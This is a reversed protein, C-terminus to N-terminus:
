TTHLNTYYMYMYWYDIISTQDLNEKYFALGNKAIQEAKKDNKKLWILTEYLNDYNNDIEIFNKKNELLPEFWMKYESKVNLIVSQKKFESPYRYAQANGQINFIYKYKKQEEENMFSGKLYELERSRDVGIIKNYAKIRIVLKSLAVDILNKKNSDKSWRYSIDALKIRPNDLTNSCGTSSGRFLAISKKDKWKIIELEKSKWEDASPIPIDLNIDKNSQSGIMWYKKIDTIIDTNLHEYAYKNDKRLYPFDKRNILLDCDAVTYKNITALIMDQFEKVYTIPNGEFYTYAEFNLLCNNAHLFHPKMLTHYKIGRQEMLELLSNDLNNNKYKLYKYWDIEVEPNYIHYACELKNNRIRFYLLEAYNNFIFKLTDELNKKVLGKKYFSFNNKVLEEIKENKILKKYKKPKTFTDLIHEKIEKWKILPEIFSIFIPNTEHQFYKYKNDTFYQIKAKVKQQVIDKNEIFDMMKHHTSIYDIKYFYINQKFGAGAQPDLGISEIVNNDNNQLLNSDFLNNDNNQLLNSDFLNTDNIEINLSKVFVNFNTYKKYNIYYNLVQKIGDKQWNKLDYLINKKKIKNLQYNTPGEHEDLKYKGVEPRYIDINNIACRNYMADDEGGWGFFSNPFGNIKEFDKKTFGIVGGLFTPFNYKYDNCAFHINYDIYQNYFDLLDYDPYSDVDHFIFRDYNYHKKAILYGINLLLGRNFKDANNQDIIYIDINSESKFVDLLKKLHDLRNRHPVIICIRYKKTLKEKKLYKYTLLKRNNKYKNYQDNIDM